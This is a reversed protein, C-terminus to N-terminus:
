LTPSFSEIIRQTEQSDKEDIELSVIPYRANGTFYYGTYYAVTGNFNTSFRKEIIGIIKTNKMIEQCGDLSFNYNKSVQTYDACSKFKIKNKPDTYLLASPNGEMDDNFNSTLYDIRSNSKEFMIIYDTGSIDGKHETIEPNGWQEPYEFSQKLDPLSYKLWNTTVTPTITEANAPTPSATNIEDNISPTSKPIIKEQSNSIPKQFLSKIRTPSLNGTKFYIAGEIIILLIIITGGIIWPWPVIKKIPETDM